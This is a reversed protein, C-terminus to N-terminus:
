VFYRGVGTTVQARLLSIRSAALHDESSAEGDATEDKSENFYEERHLAEPSPEGPVLIQLTSQHIFM